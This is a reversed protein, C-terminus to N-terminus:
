ADIMDPTSLLTLTFLSPICVTLPIRFQCDRIQLIPIFHQDCCQSNYTILLFFLGEM